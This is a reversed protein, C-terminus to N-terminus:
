SRDVTGLVDLDNSLCDMCQAREPQKASEFTTGCENCEFERVEVGGGDRGLLRGLIKTIAM